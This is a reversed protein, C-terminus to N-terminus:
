PIWGMIAAFVVAMFALTGLFGKCFAWLFGDKYALYLWMAILVTVFVALTIM